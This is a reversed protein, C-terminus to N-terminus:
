QRDKPRGQDEKHGESRLVLFGVLFVLSEKKCIQPRKKAERSGKKDKKDSYMKLNPCPTPLPFFM